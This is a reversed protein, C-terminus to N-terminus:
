LSETRCRRSRAREARSCRSRSRMAAPLGSASSCSTSSQSQRGSQTRVHSIPKNQYSDIQVFPTTFFVRAIYGGTAPVVTLARLDAGAPTNAAVKDTLQNGVILRASGPEVATVRSATTWDSGADASAITGWMCVLAGALGAAACCGLMPRIRGRPPNCRASRGATTM